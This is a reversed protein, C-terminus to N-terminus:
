FYSEESFSNGLICINKITKDTKIYNKLSAGLNNIEYINLNKKDSDFFM